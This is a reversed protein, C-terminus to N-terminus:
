RRRRVALTLTGLALLALTGPEPLQPDIEHIWGAFDSIRLDYCRDGLEPTIGDADLDTLSLHIGAIKLEGGIDVFLPGGSDGMAPMSEESKSLSNPWGEKDFDILLYGSVAADIYNYGIRLTGRPYSVPDPADIGSVGYGAVIGIQGAEQDGEYLGYGNLGTSSSLRLIALDATPHAFKEALGFSRGDPLTFTGGSISSVAHKATIVYDPSILSASTGGATNLYGVMNFPSDPAVEHNAPDDRVVIGYAPHAILLGFVLIAGSAYIRRWFKKTM